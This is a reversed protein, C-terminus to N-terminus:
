FRPQEGGIRAAGAAATGDRRQAQQMRTVGAIIAALLLSAPITLVDSATTLLESARAAEGSSDEGALRFAAVGAISSTIWCFWWWGITAPAAVIEWDRPERSAKWIERMAVFPMFLNAIPIFYWAVAMAPGGVSSAGLAHVNANALYIWRLVVLGAVLYVLVQVLSVLLYPASGEEDAFGPGYALACAAAAAAVVAQAILLTRAAGAIGGLDRVVPPPPSM